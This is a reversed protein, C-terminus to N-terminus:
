LGKTYCSPRGFTYILSIGTFMYWDRNTGGYNLADARPIPQLTSCSETYATRVDLMQARLDNLQTTVTNFNSDNAWLESLSYASPNELNTDCDISEERTAVALQRQFFNADTVLASYYAQLQSRVIDETDPTPTPQATLTAAVDTARAEAREAGVTQSLFFGVAFLIIALVALAIEIGIFKGASASKGFEGYLIINDVRDRKIRIPLGAINITLRSECEEVIFPARKREMELWQNIVTMLRQRELKLLSPLLAM